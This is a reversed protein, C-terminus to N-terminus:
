GSFVALVALVFFLWAGVVFGRGLGKLGGLLAGVATPVGVGLIFAVIWSRYASDVRVGAAIGLSVVAAAATMLMLNWLSFRLRKREDM